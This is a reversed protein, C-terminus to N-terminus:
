SGQECDSGLWSCPLRVTWRLASASIGDKESPLYTQIEVM